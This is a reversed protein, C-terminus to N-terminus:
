PRQAGPHLRHHETFSEDSPKSGAPPMTAQMYDFLENVERGGWSNLFNPGALEPAEFDGQLNPWTVRRASVRTFSSALARKIRPTAPSTRPRLM